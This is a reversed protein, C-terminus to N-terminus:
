PIPSPLKMTHYVHGRSCRQFESISSHWRQTYVYTDNATNRFVVWDEPGDNNFRTLVRFPFRNHFPLGSDRWNIITTIFMVFTKGSYEWRPYACHFVSLASRALTQRPVGIDRYGRWAERSSNGFTLQNSEFSILIDKQRYILGKPLCFLKTM